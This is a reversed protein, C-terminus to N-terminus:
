TAQLTISLLRSKVGHPFVEIVNFFFGIFTDVHLARVNLLFVCLFFLPLAALHTLMTKKKISKINGWNEKLGLM